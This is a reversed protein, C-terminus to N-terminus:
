GRERRVARLGRSDERPPEPVYPALAEAVAAGLLAHGEDTPHLGDALHDPTLLGHGLLLRLHGDGEAMLTRAADELATRLETLTAGLANPTEEAEPHLLPSVLLLPTTPHGQRVLRVFALLTEYMLPVSFPASWCNTGFALTLVDAPLRALQEAIALEGRGGGAYGLNVTDLGLRRGAVAPWSHAPRTSWWGETISDGHVLWRPRRGVPEIAGGVGRVGVVVPAQSEPPHITFSGTSRPLQIRVHGEEHPTVTTETLCEEGQWLAFTHALDHLAEGEAPVRARYRLEVATAGRALFEIRMGIPLAAREGTDWPLRMVDDPDARVPRGESDLWAVGRLYPAPDLWGGAPQGALEYPEHLEM